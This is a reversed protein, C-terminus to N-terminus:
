SLGGPDGSEGCCWEVPVIESTMNSCCTGTDRRPPPTQPSRNQPAPQPKGSPGM